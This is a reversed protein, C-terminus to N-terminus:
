SSEEKTITTRCYPCCDKSQLWQDVCESHFCHSCPLQRLEEGEEYSFQCVLCKVRCDNEDFGRAKTPDFKFAPLQSIKGQAVQQWRETKVDGLADGLRLMLDYSLTGDEQEVVGHAEQAEMEDEEMAAELAALDEASFQDRNNRLYDNSMQLTVSMAEEAMLARALAISEEEERRRREEESEGESEEVREDTTIFTPTAYDDNMPERSEEFRQQLPSPTSINESQQFGLASPGSAKMPALVRSDINENSIPTSTM